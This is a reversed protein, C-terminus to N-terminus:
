LWKLVQELLRAASDIFRSVEALPPKGYPAFGTMAPYRSDIYLKSLDDLVDEDCKLPIIEKVEHYLRSLDHIKQVPKESNELIAKFTKEFCQHAHYSAAPTLNEDDALKRAALLDIEAFEIWERVKQKM